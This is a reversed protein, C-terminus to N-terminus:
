MSHREGGAPACNSHTGHRRWVWGAALSVAVAPTAPGLEEGVLLNFIADRPGPESQIGILKVELRRGQADTVNGSLLEAYSEEAAHHDGHRWAADALAESALLLAPAPAEFEDRLVTFEHEALTSEGSRAYAGVLQTRAQIDTPDIELAQHCTDRTRADDHAALDGMLQQHLDAMRHPCVASFVSRRLMALRVRELEAESVEVNETLWARWAAELTKQRAM